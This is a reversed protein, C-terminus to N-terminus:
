EESRFDQEIEIAPIQLARAPSLPLEVDGAVVGEGIAGRGGAASDIQRKLLRLQVVDLLVGRFGVIGRGLVRGHDGFNGGAELAQDGDKGLFDFLRPGLGVGALGRGGGGVGQGSWRGALLGGPARAAANPVSDGIRFVTTSIARPERARSPCGFMVGSFSAAMFASRAPWISAMFFCACTMTSLTNLKPSSPKWSTSVELYRVPIRSFSPKWIRRPTAPMGVAHTALQPDPLGTIERPLSKSSMGCADCFGPTPQCSGIISPAGPCPSPWLEPTGNFMMAASATLFTISRSCRLPVM